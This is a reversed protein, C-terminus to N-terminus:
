LHALWILPLNIFFHLLVGYIFGNKFTVRVYGFILGMIIQNSVILPFVLYHAIRLNQFNSLHVLGFCIALGYYVLPFYNKWILGLRAYFTVPILRMYPILAITLSIVILIFLSYAHYFLTFHLAALSLFLNQKSFKLPLRFIVEEIIPVLFILKLSIPIQSLRLSKEPFLNLYKLIPQFLAMTLIALGFYLLIMKSILM